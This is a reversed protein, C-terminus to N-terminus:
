VGGQVQIQEQYHLHHSLKKSKYLHMFPQFLMTTTIPRQLYPAAASLLHRRTPLIQLRVRTLHCSQVGMQQPEQALTTMYQNLDSLQIVEWQHHPQLVAGHLFEPVGHSPLM